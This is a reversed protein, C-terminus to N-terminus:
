TSKDFLDFGLPDEEAMEWLLEKNESIIPDNMVAVPNATPYTDSEPDKDSPGSILYNMLDQM